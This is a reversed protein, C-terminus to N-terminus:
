HAAFILKWIGLLIVPASFISVLVALLLRHSTAPKDRLPIRNRLDMDFHAQLEEMRKKKEPTHLLGRSVEANYQGLEDILERAMM